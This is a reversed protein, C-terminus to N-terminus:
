FQIVGILTGVLLSIISLPWMFRIAYKIHQGISIDCIGLGVYVSAVTPSIFTGYTATLLLTAAVAQPNVGFPTVIALIVPLLGYYFADTGIMMIIPVSFLAMFWHMHPTISTPLSSTIFTAMYDVMSTGEQYAADAAAPDIVTDSTLIGVFVGVAMLTMCMQMANVGLDKIKKKQDKINPVNVVIAIAFAIMFLYYQPLGIDKFLCVLLIITLIANFTYVGKSTKLKAAEKEEQQAETVTVLKGAGHAAEVRSIVFANVFAMAILFLWSPMMYNFQTGAEYNPIYTAVMASARLTPGAWPMMNMASAAGCITAMLAQPRVGFRSIIPMFATACILFTTAGSGDLHAVISVMVIVMFLPVLGHGIKKVLADIIPDFLGAEDMLTFYAISFVFLVATNIMTREGANIATKILDPSFGACIAAILPLIIFVVPPAVVERVLIVMLAIVLIFGIIALKTSYADM